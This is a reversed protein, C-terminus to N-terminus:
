QKGMVLFHYQYGASDCDGADSNTSIIFIKLTFTARGGTGGAATRGTVYPMTNTTGSTTLVAFHANAMASGLTVVITGPNNVIGFVNVGDQPIGTLDDVYGWAKPVLAKTLKNTVATALAVDSGGSMDISGDSRIAVSSSGTSNLAWLGAGSTGKGQTFIAYGNTASANTVALVAFGGSANGQAQLGYGSGLTSFNGGSGSGSGVGVVGDGNGSPTYAGSAGLGVLGDGTGTAQGIAGAAGSPGGTFKGGPSQLAGTGRVGVGGLVASDGGTAQIGDGGWFTSGGDLGGLFVGGHGGAGEDWGAGGTGKLGVGGDKAGGFPWTSTAGGTFDGGTGTIDGGIAVIATGAPSIDQQYGGGTAFIGNGATGVGVARVGHGIAASSTFTGGYSNNTLGGTGSVGTATLLGLGAVGIGTTAGGIGFVGIGNSSGGEGYVGSGAVGGKGYVGHRPTSTSGSTGFGQVGNGGQTGNAGTAHVGAGFLGATGNTGGFGKLGHGSTVGFGVVGDGTTAGGIGVVGPGSSTGGQGAVGTGAGTGGTGFVGTASGEGVGEVGVGGVGGVGLVGQHASASVIAAGAAGKGYVGPGLSTGRGAVGVGNSAGGIGVIGSGTGSGTATIAETNGLLSNTFVNNNTFLNAQILGAKRDDLDNLAVDVRTVGALDVPTVPLFGIKAAGTNNGLAFPIADIASEISGAPITTADAWPGSGGYLMNTSSHTHLVDASALPGGYLRSKAFNDQRRTSFEIDDVYVTGSTGAEFLVAVVAVDADGPATVMTKREVYTTSGGTFPTEANTTVGVINDTRDLFIVFLSVGGGIIPDGGTSRLWAGLRYEEGGVAPSIFTRVFGTTPAAAVMKLSKSGSHANNTSATVVIGSGFFQWGGPFVGDPDQEFGPNGILNVRPKAELQISDGASLRYAANIHSTLIPPVGILPVNVKALLVLDPNSAIEAADVVLLQAASAAGIAFQADLAIYVSTGVFATLNVGTINAPQMLTVSFKGGSTELVNAGSFGLVPDVQVDVLFGGGPVVTFGAFVGRPLLAAMKENLASTVYPEKWRVKITASALSTTQLVTM